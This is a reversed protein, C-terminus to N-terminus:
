MSSSKNDLMQNYYDRDQDSEGKIIEVWEYEVPMWENSRLKLQINVDLYFTSGHWPKDLIQDGTYQISTTLFLIGTTTDFKNSIIQLDDIFFGDANTEAIAGSMQNEIELILENYISDLFLIDDLNKFGTAAFILKPDKPNKNSITTLEHFNSFGYRISLQEQAVSLKIGNTKALSKAQQKILNLYTYKNM